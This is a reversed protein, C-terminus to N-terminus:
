MMEEAINIKLMKKKGFYKPVQAKIIPYKKIDSLEAIIFIEISDFLFNILKFKIFVIKIRTKILTAEAVRPINIWLRKFILKINSIMTEVINVSPEFIKNISQKLIALM